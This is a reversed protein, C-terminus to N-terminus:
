SLCREWELVQRNWNMEVYERKLRIQLQSASHQLWSVPYFNTTWSHSRGPGSCLAWWAGWWGRPWPRARCWGWWGWRLALSWGPCPATLRWRTGWPWWWGAPVPCSWDSGPSGRDRSPCPGPCSSTGRGGPWAWTLWCNIIKKIITIIIGTLASKGSYETWDKELQLHRHCREPSLWLM